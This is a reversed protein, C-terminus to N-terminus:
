KKIIKHLESNRDSDIIKLFYIGNDLNSINIENTNYFKGIEQGLSNFLTITSIPSKSVLTIIGETPNPYITFQNKEFGNISLIENKYWAVKNDLSSASIIDLLGDGNLDAATADTARNVETSITQKLGFNGLGDTNEFWAISSTQSDNNFLTTLIDKDGDNDIDYPRLSALSSFDNSIFQTSSFNGQNDLNEIWYIDEQTISGDDSAYSSDFLLDKKGDNNIDVVTIHNITTWGSSSFTFQFILQQETFSGQNDLNEYWVIKGPGNNVILIIDQDSDNDLDFLIFKESSDGFTDIFVGTNFNGLGDTNEYWIISNQVSSSHVITLIDLDGDNDMDAFDM